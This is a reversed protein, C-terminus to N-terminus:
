LSLLPSVSPVLPEGGLRLSASVAEAAAFAWCAGCEGQNQVAPLVTEGLPNLSSAWNLEESFRSNLNMRRHLSQLDAETAEDPPRQQYVSFMSDLETELWDLFHNHRVSFSRKSARLKEELERLLQLNDYFRRIRDHSESWSLDKHYDQLYFEYNLDHCSGKSLWVMVLVEVLM